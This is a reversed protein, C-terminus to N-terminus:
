SVSRAKIQYHVHYRQNTNNWVVVFAGHMLDPCTFISTGPKPSLPRGCTPCVKLQDIVKQFNNDRFESM